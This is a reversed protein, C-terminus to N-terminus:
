LSATNSLEIYKKVGNVYIVLDGNVGEIGAILNSVELNSVQLNSVVLDRDVRLDKAWLKGDRFGFKAM